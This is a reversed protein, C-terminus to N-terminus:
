AEIGGAPGRKKFDIRSGTFCCASGAGPGPEQATEGPPRTPLDLLSQARGAAAPPPLFIASSAFTSDGAVDLHVRPRPCCVPAQPSNRSVSGCDHGRRTRGQSSVVGATAAATM